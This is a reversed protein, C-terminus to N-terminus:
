SVGRDQELGVKGVSVEQASGPLRSGAKETGGTGSGGGGQVLDVYLILM